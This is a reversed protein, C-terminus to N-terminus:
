PLKKFVIADSIPRIVERGMSEDKDGVTRNIVHGDLYLSSSGGGDLNIASTCNLGKMLTALESITLGVASEKTEYEKAVIEKMETMTLDNLSAKKYKVLINAKNNTIVSKVEDLTVEKLPKKYVHEAVVIVISGDSRIGFATRAHPTKYFNDNRNLLNPNIEGDQILMPIGMVVSKKGEKSLDFPDLLIKVDDGRFVTDMPYNIPLSVVFGEQPIAINGQKSYEVVKNNANIAIEQREKLPTLSRQGWMHSYLVIDQNNSLKNVAKPTITNKGIIIKLNPSVNQIKFGEQDFVLCDHKQLKLGLIQKNIILTGSPMGDQSEGIEFFGANIAIDAGTRKAIAELTERGFVQNHAKIYAVSYDKPQLTIVHIVHDGSKRCEYTRGKAQASSLPLFLLLSIIIFFNM